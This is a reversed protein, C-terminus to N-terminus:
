GDTTTVRLIEDQQTVRLVEDLTTRGEQVKEWGDEQMTRMGLEIAKRWLADSSAKAMILDRIPDAMPLIEYIATRGFFGTHQCRDCGKAQFMRRLGQRGPAIGRGTLPGSPGASQASGGEAATFPPPIM